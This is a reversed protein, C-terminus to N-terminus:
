SIRKEKLHEKVEILQEKKIESKNQLKNYQARVKLLNKQYSSKKDWKLIRLNRILYYIYQYIRFSNNNYISYNITELKWIDINNESVSTVIRNDKLKIMYNIESKNMVFTEECELTKLHWLKM